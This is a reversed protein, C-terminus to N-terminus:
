VRMLQELLSAMQTINNKVDELEKQYHAELQAKEENKMRKCLRTNYVRVSLGINWTHEHVNWLEYICISIHNHMIIYTPYPNAIGWASIHGDNKYLRTFGQLFFTSSTFEQSYQNMLNYPDRTWIKM